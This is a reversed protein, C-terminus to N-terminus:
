KYQIDTITVIPMYQGNYYGESLWTLRVMVDGDWPSPIFNYLNNPKCILGFYPNEKLIIAHGIQSGKWEIRGSYFHNADLKYPVTYNADQYYVGNYYYYYQGNYYPVNYPIEHDHDKNCSTLTGILLVLAFFIRRYM